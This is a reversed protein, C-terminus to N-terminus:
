IEGLLDLSAEGKQLINIKKLLDTYSMASCTAGTGLQTTITPTYMSQTFRLHYWIETLLELKNLSSSLNMLNLKQDVNLNATERPM